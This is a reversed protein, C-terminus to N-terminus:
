TLCLFVDGSIVTNSSSWGDVAPRESSVQQQRQQQQQERLIHIRTLYSLWCNAAQLHVDAPGSAGAPGEAHHRPQQVLMKATPLSLPCTPILTISTPPIIGQSSHFALVRIGGDEGPSGWNTM